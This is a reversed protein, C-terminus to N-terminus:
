HATEDTSQIRLLPNAIKDETPYPMSINNNSSKQTSFFYLKTNLTWERWQRDTNLVEIKLQLVVATSNSFNLSRGIVKVVCWPTRFRTGTFRLWRLNWFRATFIDCLVVILISWWGAIRRHVRSGIFMYIKDVTKFMFCIHQLHSIIMFMIAFPLCRDQNYIDALSHFKEESPLNLKCVITPMFVNTPQKSVFQSSFMLVNVFRVSFYKLTLSHKTLLVEDTFWHYFLCSSLQM